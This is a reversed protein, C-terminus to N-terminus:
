VLNFQGFLPLKMSPRTQLTWIILQSLLECPLTGGQYLLSDIKQFMREQMRSRILLSNLLLDWRSLFEVRWLWGNL